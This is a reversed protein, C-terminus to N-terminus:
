RTRFHTLLLEMMLRFSKIQDATDIKDPMQRAYIQMAINYQYTM